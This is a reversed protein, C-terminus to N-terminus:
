NSWLKKCANIADQFTGVDTSLVCELTTYDKFFRITCGASKGWVIVEARKSKDANYVQMTTKIDIGYPASCNGLYSKPQGLRRKIFNIFFPRQQCTRLKINKAMFNYYGDKAAKVTVRHNTLKTLDIDSKISMFASHKPM